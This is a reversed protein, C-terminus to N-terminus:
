PKPSSFPRLYVYYINLLNSRPWVLNNTSFILLALLQEVEFWLFLLNIPQSSTFSVNLTFDSFCSTMFDILYPKFLM